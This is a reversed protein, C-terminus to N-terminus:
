SNGNTIVMFGVIVFVLALGFLGVHVWTSPSTIANFASIIQGLGSNQINQMIQQGSNNNNVTNIGQGGYANAICNALDTGTKGACPNNSNNPQSSLPSAGNLFQNYAGNTFTNWQSFNTGNNSIRYAQQFACAGNFACADSVEPHWYSNIQLIGRDRNDTRGRIATDLGSEAEAISVITALGAGTFGAQKAWATAQSVSVVSM